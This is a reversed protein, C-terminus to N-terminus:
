AASRNQPDADEAERYALQAKKIASEYEDLIRRQRKNWHRYLTEKQRDRRAKAAKIAKHRAVEAVRQHESMRDWWEFDFGDPRRTSM